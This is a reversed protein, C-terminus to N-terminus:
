AAAEAEDLTDDAPCEHWENVDADAMLESAEIVSSPLSCGAARM